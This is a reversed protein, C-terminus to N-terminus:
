QNIPKSLDKGEVGNKLIKIFHQAILSNNQVEPIVGAILVPPETVESTVDLFIIDMEGTKINKRLHYVYIPLVFNDEDAKHAFDIIMKQIKDINNETLNFSQLDEIQEKTMKDSYGWIKYKGKETMDTMLLYTKGDKEFYRTTVPVPYKKKRLLDYSRIAGIVDKKNKEKSIFGLEPVVDKRGESYSPNVLPTFFKKGELGGLPLAKFKDEKIKFTSSKESTLNGNKFIPRKFEVSVDNMIKM